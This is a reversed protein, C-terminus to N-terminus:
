DVKSKKAKKKERLLAEAEKRSILRKPRGPKGTKVTHAHMNLIMNQEEVHGPIITYKSKITKM